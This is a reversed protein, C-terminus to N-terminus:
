GLWKDIGIMKMSEDVFNALGIRLTVGVMGHLWM